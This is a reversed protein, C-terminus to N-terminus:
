DTLRIGVYQPYIREMWITILPINRVARRWAKESFSRRDLELYDLYEEVGENLSLMQAMQKDDSPLSCPIMQSELQVWTQVFPVPPIDTKKEAEEVFRCALNSLELQDLYEKIYANLRKLTEDSLPSSGIQSAAAAHPPAEDSSVESSASAVHPPAAEPSLPPPPSASWLPNWDSM